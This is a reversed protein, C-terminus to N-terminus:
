GQWDGTRIRYTDTVDTVYVIGDGAAGTRAAAMIVGITEHAMDESVVLEVQMGPTFTVVYERGRYVQTQRRGAGKGLVESITMGSVPLRSLADRVAELKHPRIITKILQM